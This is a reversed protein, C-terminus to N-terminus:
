SGPNSQRLSLRRGVKLRLDPDVLLLLRRRPLEAIPAYDNVVDFRVKRHLWKALAETTTKLL